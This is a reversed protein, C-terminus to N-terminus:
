EGGQGPHSDAGNVAPEVSGQIMEEAKKAHIRLAEAFGADFGKAFIAKGVHDPNFGDHDWDFGACDVALYRFGKVAMAETIRPKTRNSM